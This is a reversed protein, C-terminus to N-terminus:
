RLRDHDGAADRFGAAVRGMAPSVTLIPCRQHVVDGQHLL